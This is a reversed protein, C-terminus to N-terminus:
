KKILSLPAYQFASRESFLLARSKEPFIPHNRLIEIHHRSSLVVTSHSGGHPFSDTAGGASQHPSGAMIAQKRCAEAFEGRMQGQPAVKEGLPLLSLSAAGM